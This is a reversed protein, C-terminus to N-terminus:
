KTEVVRTAKWDRSQADGNRNFEIKGNIADATVKGSFKNTMSNGNYERIVAFSISDADVKGDVIETQNTTGNRGPSVVKGTLKTAEVKLTLTNTRDPGGNRGPMTWTWVGTADATQDAATAGFCLIAVTAALTICTFIRLKSTM